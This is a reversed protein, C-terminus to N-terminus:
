GWGGGRLRITGDVGRAMTRTGTTRTGMTGMTRPYNEESLGRGEGGLQERLGLAPECRNELPDEMTRPDIEATGYDTIFSHFPTLSNTFGGGGGRETERESGREREGERGGERGKDRERERAKEKGSGTGTEREHKSKHTHRRLTEKNCMHCVCAHVCERETVCVCACM